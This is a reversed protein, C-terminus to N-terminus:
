QPITFTITTGQGLKSEAFIRGGHATVINKSISLGLGFGIRKTEKALTLNNEFIDNPDKLNIGCGMDSVSFLFEGASKSLRIIITSGQPAYDIANAVLNNIVRKIEIYDVMVFANEVNIYIESKLEKDILMYKTEDLCENIIEVLNQRELKLQPSSNDQKYSCLINDAMTKKFKASSLIDSLIEQQSTNLEGLKKKLLLQLATIEAAIPTKLDHTIMALYEDKSKNFIKKAEEQKLINYIQKRVISVDYPKEIYHCAGADYGSIKYEYDSLASVFIIPSDVNKDSNKIYEAIEFGSVDPMLIDLLFLDFKEERIREFANQPQTFVELAIGLGRVVEELLQINMTNDDVIMVKVDCLPPLIEQESDNVLSVVTEAELYTNIIKEDIPYPIVNKIGISNAFLIEERTLNKAALWFKTNLNTKVLEGIQQPNSKFDAVIICLDQEIKCGGLDTEKIIQYKKIDQM